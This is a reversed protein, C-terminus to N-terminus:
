CTHLTKQGKYIDLEYQQYEHPLFLQTDPFLFIFYHFDRPM